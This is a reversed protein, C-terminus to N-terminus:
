ELGKWLEPEKPDSHFKLCQEVLRVRSKLKSKCPITVTAWGLLFDVDRREASNAYYDLLDDIFSWREAKILSDAINYLEDLEKDTM